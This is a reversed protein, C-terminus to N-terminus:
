IADPHQNEYVFVADSQAIAADCEGRALRQLNDMSGNTAIIEVSSLQQKVLTGAKYYNGTTKGTCLKVTTPSWAHAKNGIAVLGLSIVTVSALLLTRLRM